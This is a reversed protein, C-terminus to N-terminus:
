KLAWATDAVGTKLWLEGTGANDRSGLSGIPAAVGTVSPDTTLLYPLRRNAARMWDTQARHWGKTNGNANSETEEGYGSIRAATNPMPLSVRINQEYMGNAVSARVVITGSEADADSPVTMTPTATTPNILSVSSDLPSEDIFWEYDEESNEPATDVFSLVEGEVLDDKDVGDLEPGSTSGTVQIVPQAPM